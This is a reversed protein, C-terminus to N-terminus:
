RRIFFKDLSFVYKTEFKFTHKSTEQIVIKKNLGRVTKWAYKYKLSNSVHQIQKVVRNGIERKFNM